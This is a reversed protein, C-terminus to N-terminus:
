PIKAEPQGGSYVLRMTDMYNFKQAAAKIWRIRDPFGADKLM